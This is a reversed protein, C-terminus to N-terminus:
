RSGSDSTSTRCGKNIFEVVDAELYRVARGVRHFRPPRGEFRWRELTRISVGLVDAVETPTLLTPITSLRM